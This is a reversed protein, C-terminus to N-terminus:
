EEIVREGVAIDGRLVPGAFSYRVTGDVVFRARITDRTTSTEDADKNDAVGCVVQGKVERSGVLMVGPGSFLATNDEVGLRKVRAKLTIEPRDPTALQRLYFAGDTTTTGDSATKKAAGFEFAAYRGDQAKAGGYGRAGQVLIDALAAAAITAVAVATLTKMHM